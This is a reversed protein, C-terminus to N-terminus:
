GLLVLDERPMEDEDGRAEPAMTTVETVPRGPM